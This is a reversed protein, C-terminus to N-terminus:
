LSLDSDLVSTNGHSCIANKINALKARDPQGVENKFRETIIPSLNLGFQLDLLEEKCVGLGMDESVRDVLAKEVFYNWSQSRIQYTNDRQQESYVLKEYTEFESRKIETDGVMGLSNIDSASYRQTNSVVDMLIFGGLALVMTGILIWGNKRITGILAM